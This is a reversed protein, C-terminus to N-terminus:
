SININQNKKCFAPAFTCFIRTPQSVGCFKKRAEFKLFFDYKQRRFSLPASLSLISGIFRIRIIGVYPSNRSM